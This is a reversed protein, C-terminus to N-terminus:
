LVHCVNVCLQERKEICFARSVADDFVFGFPPRLEDRLNAAVTDFLGDLRYHHLRSHTFLFVEVAEGIDRAIAAHVQISDFAMEIRLADADGRMFFGFRQRSADDPRNRREREAVLEVQQNIREDLLIFLDHEVRTAQVSGDKHFEVVVDADGLRLQYWDGLASLKNGKYFQADQEILLQVASQVRM